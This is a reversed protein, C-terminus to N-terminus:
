LCVVLWTNLVITRNTFGIKDSIVVPSASISAVIANLEPNLETFNYTNGPQNSITWFTDKFPSLGISWSIISLRGIHWQIPNTSYDDSLRISRFIYNM